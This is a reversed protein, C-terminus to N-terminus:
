YSHINRAAALRVTLIGLPHQGTRPWLRIRGVQICQLLMPAVHSVGGLVLEKLQLVVRRIQALHELAVTEVSQMAIALEDRSIEVEKGLRTVVGGAYPFARTVGSIPQAFVHSGRHPDDLLLDGVDFHIRQEFIGLLLGQDIRQDLGRVGVEDRL